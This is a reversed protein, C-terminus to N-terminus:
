RQELIWQVARQSLEASNKLNLKRKIKERHTEITHVSLGLRNAIESTAHGQGILEFVELERDSLTEVSSVAMDSGGGVARHLLRGTMETSLYVEGRLAQRIADLLRQASERKNVYGLAGAQLAREAYLKDDYMSHALTKVRPQHTRIHKILDLGHGDELSLDIVALDPTLEKLLPIAEACTAAEGCLELDPERSLRVALGERVMPHDDVVFIRATKHFPHNM